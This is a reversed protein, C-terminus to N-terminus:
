RRFRRGMFFLVLSLVAYLALMGILAHLKADRGWLVGATHYGALIAILVLMPAIRKVVKM